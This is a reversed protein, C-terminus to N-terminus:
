VTPVNHCKYFKKCNIMTSNIGEMRRKGDSWNRSVTQVTRMKKKKMKKKKRKRKKKKEMGREKYGVGRV